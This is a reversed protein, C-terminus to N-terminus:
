TQWEGGEAAQKDEGREVTVGDGSRPVSQEGALLSAPTARLHGLTALTAGLLAILLAGLVIGLAVGPDLIAGLRVGFPALLGAADFGVLVIVGVALAVMSALAGIV